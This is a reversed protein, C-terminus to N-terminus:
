IGTLVAMQEEDFTGDPAVFIDVTLIGGAKHLKELYDKIHAHGVTTGRAGWAGYPGSCTGLPVLLHAQAGDVFRGTPIYTFNEFEIHGCCEGCTFEEDKVYTELPKSYDIVGNNFATLANPNGKKIANYYLRIMEETYGSYTYCSDLWWAKVKDGYRVSFEELISSWKIVFDRGAEGKLANVNSVDSGFFQFKERYKRAFSNNSPSLCNFYLCLDIDYKKLAYYLDDVLDRRACLEGPESGCITDYVANPAIMYEKGHVLTIFYYGAGMKHLQYAVKEVDYSDVTRNWDSLDVGNYHTEMGPHCVYHNFVGWRKEYMRDQQSRIQEKM